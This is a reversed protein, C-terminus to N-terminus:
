YWGSIETGDEYIRTVDPDYNVPTNSFCYWIRGKNTEIIKAETINQDKYKIKIKEISDDYIAGFTLSVLEDDSEIEKPQLNSFMRTLIRNEDNFM